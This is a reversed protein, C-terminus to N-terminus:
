RGPDDRERLARAEGYAFPADVAHALVRSVFVRSIRSPGLLLIGSKYARIPRTKGHEQRLIKYHSELAAALVKKSALQGCGYRDLKEEIEKQTPLFVRGGQYGRRRKEQAIISQCLEVCEGCILVNGPGEILPGVDRYSKRCFSCCANQLKM